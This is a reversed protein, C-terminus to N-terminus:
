AILVRATIIYFSSLPFVFGIHLFRLNLRRPSRCLFSNQGYIFVCASKLVEITVLLYAGVLVLAVLGM